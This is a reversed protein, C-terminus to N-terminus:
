EKTRGAKLRATLMMAAAEPSQGLHALVADVTRRAAARLDDRGTWAALRQMVLAAVSSASPIVSDSDEKIRTLPVDAADV